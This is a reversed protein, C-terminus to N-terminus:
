LEKKRMGKTGMMSYSAQSIVKGIPSPEATPKSNAIPFKEPNTRPNIMVRITCPFEFYYVKAPNAKQRPMKRM